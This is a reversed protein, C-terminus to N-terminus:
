RSVTGTVRPPQERDLREGDRREGGQGHQDDRDDAQHGAGRQEPQVREHQQGAVGDAEAARQQAREADDGVHDIASNASAAPPSNTEVSVSFAIAAIAVVTLM